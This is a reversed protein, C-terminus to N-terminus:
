CGMRELVESDPRQWPFREELSRILREHHESRPEISTEFPGLHSLAGPLHDVKPEIVVGDVVKKSIRFAALVQAFNLFLSNQALIKGACVRRGFGFVFRVPDPEPEHTATKLHREPRFVDPDPYLDPNHTFWWINAFMIANKPVRYGGYTTEEPNTHPLCLPIVSHWRLSEKVLAEIYPLNKRDELTPLRDCGVVRDIEEQAKAQVEPHMTIALFFAGMSSVTTDAGGTYLSQAAWKNSQVEEPSDGSHEILRSVYCPIDRGQARQYEVFAYPKEVTEALENKWQRALKKWGTGPFWDPVHRLIPFTDVLYTGPAAFEALDDMVKQVIYILPDQKTQEANYGYVLKLIMTGASRKIHDQLQEPSELLHLLFHAVEAELLGNFQSAAANSGIIRGFGKRRHRLVDGDPIFATNHKWGVLEGGLFPQSRSSYTSRKDLIDLALQADNILIITNGMITISSLPGYEDKFKLWHKSGFSGPPPLDKLNGVIPLGKPGPPLPLLKANKKAQILKDIVYVLLLAGGFGLVLTSDKM